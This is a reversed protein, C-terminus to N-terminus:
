LAIKSAKILIDRITTAYKEMEEELINPHVLFMLSTNGLAKANKLDYKPKYGSRIISKEKYIESCSGQFAPYGRDNITKIIKNWIKQFTQPTEPFM